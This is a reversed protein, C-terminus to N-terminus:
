IEDVFDFIITKVEQIDSNDIGLIMFCKQMKILYVGSIQEMLILVKKM